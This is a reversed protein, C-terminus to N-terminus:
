VGAPFFAMDILGAARQQLAAAVAASTVVWMIVTCPFNQLSVSLLEESLKLVTQSM